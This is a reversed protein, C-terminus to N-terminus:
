VSLKHELIHVKRLKGYASPVSDEVRPPWCSVSPAGSVYVGGAVDVEVM